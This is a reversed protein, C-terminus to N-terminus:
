LATANSVQQQRKRAWTEALKARRAAAKVPDQWAAASKANMATVDFLERKRIRAEITSCAAKIAGACRQRYEDDQWLLKSRESYQESQAAFRAKGAARVKEVKEPTWSDSLKQRYAPDSRLRENLEFMNTSHELKLREYTRSTVRFSREQQDNGILMMRAANVMKARAQGETMRVLLLHAIFHKRPALLVLNSPENSGGLSRPVIHHEELYGDADASSVLRQYCHAYKNDLFM